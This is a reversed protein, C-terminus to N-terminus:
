FPSECKTVLPKRGYCRHEISYCLRQSRASAEADQSKGRTLYQPSEGASRPVTAKFINKVIGLLNTKPTCNCKEKQKSSLRGKIQRTM